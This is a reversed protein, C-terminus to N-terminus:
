MKYWHKTPYLAIHERIRDFVIVTDNVSYGILTLIAAVVNQDIELSFPSIHRLLSFLGLVIVPDHILAVISGVAYELKKFRVFIYIGIGLIGLIGALFASKRIDDAITPEIRTISKINRTRFSEFDGKTAFYPTIGAFM